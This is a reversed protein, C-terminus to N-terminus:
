RVLQEAQSNHNETSIYMCTGQGIIRMLKIQDSSYLKSQPIITKMEEISLRRSTDVHM